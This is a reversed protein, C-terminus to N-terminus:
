RPYTIHPFRQVAQTGELCPAQSIGRCCERGDRCQAFAFHTALHRFTHGGRVTPPLVEHSGRLQRTIGGVGRALDWPEVQRDPKRNGKPM